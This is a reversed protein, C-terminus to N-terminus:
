LLGALLLGLLSSALTITPGAHDGEGRHRTPAAGRAITWADRSVGVPNDMPRPVDV